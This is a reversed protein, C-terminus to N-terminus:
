FLLAGFPAAAFTGAPPPLSHGTIDRLRAIPRRTGPRRRNKKRRKSERYALKIEAQLV